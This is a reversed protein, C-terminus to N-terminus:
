PLSPEPSATYESWAREYTQQQAESTTEFWGDFIAKGGSEPFDPLAGVEKAFGGIEDDRYTQESLWAPFTKTTAM